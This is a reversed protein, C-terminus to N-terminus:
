PPREKPCKRWTQTQVTASWMGIMLGQEQTLQDLFLEKQMSKTISINADKSILTVLKPPFNVIINAKRYQFKQKMAELKPNKYGSQQVLRINVLSSGIIILMISM